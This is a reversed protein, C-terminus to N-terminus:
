FSAHPVGMASSCPPQTTRSAILPWVTVRGAVDSSACCGTASPREVLLSAPEAVAVLLREAPHRVLQDALKIMAQPVALGIPFLGSPRQGGLQEAPEIAALGLTATTPDLAASPLRSADRLSACRGQPSRSSGSLAVGESRRSRTV